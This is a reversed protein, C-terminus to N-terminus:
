PHNSAVNQKIALLVELPCLEPNDTTLLKFISEESIDEYHPLQNKSM